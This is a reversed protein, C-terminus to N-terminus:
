LKLIAQLETDIETQERTGHKALHRIRMRLKYICAARQFLFAQVGARLEESNQVVGSTLNKSWFCYASCQM